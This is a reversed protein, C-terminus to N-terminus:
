NVTADEFVAAIEKLVAGPEPDQFVSRGICAGSFGLDRALALRAILDGRREGGALLTPPAHVVARRLVALQDPDAKATEPPLGVKILDAGLETSIRLADAGAEYPDGCRSPTVMLLVPIEYRAADSVMLSLAHVVHPLGSANLDMQVAIADAALRLADDVRCTVVKAEPRSGLSPLGFTQLVLGARISPPLMTAVGRNVVVGTVSTSAALALSPSLDTLGDIQGHTLGHDMALWLYAGEPTRLRELRRVKGCSNGDGAM